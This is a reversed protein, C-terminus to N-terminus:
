QYRGVPCLVKVPTQGKGPPTATSGRTVGRPDRPWDSRALCAKLDILTKVGRDQIEILQRDPDIRFLLKGTGPQRVEKFM